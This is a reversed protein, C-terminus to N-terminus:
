RRKHTCPAIAIGLNEAVQYFRDALILYMHLMVFYKLIKDHGLLCRWFNIIRQGFDKYLRLM